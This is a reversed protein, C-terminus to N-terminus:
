SKLIKIEERFRAEYQIHTPVDHSSIALSEQVAVVGGYDDKLRNGAEEFLKLLNPLPVPLASAEPGLKEVKTQTSAFPLPITDHTWSLKCENTVRFRLLGAVSLLHSIKSRM